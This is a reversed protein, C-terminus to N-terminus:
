LRYFRNSHFKKQSLENIQKLMISINKYDLAYTANKLSILIGKIERESIGIQSTISNILLVTRRSEVVGNYSFLIINNRINM